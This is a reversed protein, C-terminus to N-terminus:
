LKFDLLLMSKAALKNVLVTSYFLWEILSSEFLNFIFNRQFKPTSSEIIMRAKQTLTKSVQM